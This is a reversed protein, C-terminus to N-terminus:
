WARLATIMSETLFAGVASTGGGADFRPNPDVVGCGCLLTDYISIAHCISIGLQLSKNGQDGVFAGTITTYLLTWPPFYKQCAPVPETDQIIEM